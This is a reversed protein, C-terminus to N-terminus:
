RCVRFGINYSTTNIYTGGDNSVLAYEAPHTWTGGIILYDDDYMGTTWEWVNVAMDCMGYGYRGHSGVDITGNPHTSSSINAMSTNITTGCGYLYSGDFDAVARWEWETPLRYGYYNCFAISGYRSVYTVPHNDFGSDVTFSSGDYNIRAAGGHTAGALGSGGGALHYYVMDSFDAGSNSGSAGVVRNPDAIDFAIDGSDLAANLFQCYQANTIEYKSMEGTFPEHDPIGDGGAPTDDVGPDDIYVWVLNEPSDPVGETMWQIAMVALDALGVKCDGSLDATPCEAHGSASLLLIVCVLFSKKM